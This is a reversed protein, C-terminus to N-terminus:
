NACGIHSFWWKFNRISRTDATVSAFPEPAVVTHDGSMEWVSRTKSVAQITNDKIMLFFSWDEESAYTVSDIDIAWDCEVIPELALLGKQAHSLDPMSDVHSALAGADRALEPFRRRLIALVQCAGLLGMFANAETLDSRQLQAMSSVMASVCAQTTGVELDSARAVHQAFYSLRDVVNRDARWNGSAFTAHLDMLPQQSKLVGGNDKEGAPEWPNRLEWVPVADQSSVASQTSYDSALSLLIAKWTELPVASVPLSSTARFRRAAAEHLQEMKMELATKDVTLGSIRVQLGECQKQLASKDVELAEKETELTTKDVTLGSM